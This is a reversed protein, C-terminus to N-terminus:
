SIRVLLTATTQSIFAGLVRWTGVNVGIAGGGGDSSSPVVQSGSVTEGASNTGNAVRKGFLYQGVALYALSQNTAPITPADSIDAWEHTHGSPAFTLPKNSIDGWAHTHASPTFDSPKNSVEDWDPWRTATTPLDGNTPIETSGTGTNKTAASGLPVGGIKPATVFNAGNGGSLLAFRSDNEMNTRFENNGTGQTEKSMSGLDSNKPVDDNGTGSNLTSASGLGTVKTYDIATLNLVINSTGDFDVGDATAGGGISIKRKTKLKTASGSINIAYEDALDVWSAGNWVQWKKSASSWRIAYQPVNTPSVRAPDLGLSIDNMKDHLQTVFDLYGTTVTPKNFDAM